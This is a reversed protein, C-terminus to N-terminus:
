RTNLLTLPYKLLEMEYHVDLLNVYHPAKFTSRPVKREQTRVSIFDLVVGGCLSSVEILFRLFTLVQVFM